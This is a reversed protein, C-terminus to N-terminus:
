LAVSVMAPVVTVSRDEWCGRIVHGDLYAWVTSCDQNSPYWSAGSIERPLDGEDDSFLPSDLVTEAASRVPRPVLPGDIADRAYKSQDSHATMITRRDNLFSIRVIPALDEPIGSGLRVLKRTGM